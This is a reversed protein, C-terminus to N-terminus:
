RYGFLAYFNRARVIRTCRKKLNAECTPGCKGPCHQQNQRNAEAGVQCLAGDVQFELPGLDKALEHLDGGKMM